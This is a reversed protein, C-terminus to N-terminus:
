SRTFMSCFSISYIVHGATGLVAPIFSWPNLWSVLVIVGLVQFLASSLYIFIYM